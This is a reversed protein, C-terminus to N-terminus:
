QIFKLVINQANHVEEFTTECGKCRDPSVTLCPRATLGDTVNKPRPSRGKEAEIGRFGFCIVGSSKMTYSTVLCFKTQSRVVYKEQFRCFCEFGEFDTSKRRRSGTQARARTTSAGWPSRRVEKFQLLFPNSYEFNPDKMSNLIVGRVLGLFFKSFM